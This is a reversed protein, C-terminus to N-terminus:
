ARLSIVRLKRTVLIEQVLRDRTYLAKYLGM